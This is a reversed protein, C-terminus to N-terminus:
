EFRARWKALLRRRDDLGAIERDIGAVIDSSITDPVPRQDALIMSLYATSIGCMRAFRSQGREGYLAEIAAAIKTRIDAM